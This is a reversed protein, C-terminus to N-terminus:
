FRKWDMALERLEDTKNLDCACTSFSAHLIHLDRIYYYFSSFFQTSTHLKYCDHVRCKSKNSTNTTWVVSWCVSSTPRPNSTYATYMVCPCTYCVSTAHILVRVHTACPREYMADTTYLVCPTQLGRIEYSTDTTYVVRHPSRVHTACPHTCQAACPSTYANSAHILPTSFVPVHSDLLPPPISVCTTAHM